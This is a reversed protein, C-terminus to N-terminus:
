LNANKIAKTTALPLITRTSSCKPSSASASCAFTRAALRYISGPLAPACWSRRTPRPVDREYEDLIALKYEADFRRRKPKAAPDDNGGGMDHAAAVLVQSTMTM